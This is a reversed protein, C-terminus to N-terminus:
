CVSLLTRLHRLATRDHRRCEGRPCERPRPTIASRSPQERPHGPRRAVPTQSAALEPPGPRGLRLSSRAGDEAALRQSKRNCHGGRQQEAGRDASGRPRRLSSVVAASAPVDTDAARSSTRQAHCAQAHDSHRARTGSSSHTGAAVFRGGSARQEGGWPEAATPWNTWRRWSCLRAVVLAVTGALPELKDHGTEGLLPGPRSRDIAVGVHSLRQSSLCDPFSTSARGRVPRPLLGARESLSRRNLRGRFGAQPGCFFTRQHIPEKPPHGGSRRM